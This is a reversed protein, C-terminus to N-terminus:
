PADSRVKVTDGDISFHLGSGEPYEAVLEPPMEPTVTAQVSAPFSGASCGNIYLAGDTSVTSLVVLCSGPGGESGGTRLITLGHFDDTAFADAFGNEAWKESESLQLAAVERGPAGTAWITGALVILATAVVSAAWLGIWRKGLRTPGALRISSSADGPTVVEEPSTTRLDRFSPDSSGAGEGLPVDGRLLRLREQAGRDLGLDGDRGYTRRQLEELEARESESM